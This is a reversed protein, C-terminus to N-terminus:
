SQAYQEDTFPDFHQKNSLCMEQQWLKDNFNFM